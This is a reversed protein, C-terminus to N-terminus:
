PTRNCPCTAWTPVGGSSNQLCFGDTCCHQTLHDEAGGFYGFSGLNFGRHVPLYDRRAFGLHWKGAQIADYGVARLREALTTMELPLGADPSAVGQGEQYVHHPFRGSMLAARSPSCWMYAYMRQMVAGERALKDLRPTLVEPNHDHYGVSNWGVDDGVVLFLHPQLAFAAPLLAVAAVGRM